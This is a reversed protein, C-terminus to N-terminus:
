AQRGRRGRGTRARLTLLADQGGESVLMKCLHRFDKHKLPIDAALGQLASTDAGILQKFCNGRISYSSGDGKCFTTVSPARVPSPILKSGGGTAAPREAPLTGVARREGGGGD